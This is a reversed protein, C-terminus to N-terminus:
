LCPRKYHEAAKGLKM